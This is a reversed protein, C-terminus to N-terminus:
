MNDSKRWGCCSNSSTAASSISFCEDFGSDSHHPSAPQAKVRVGGRLGRTFSSKLIGGSPPAGRGSKDRVAGLTRYSSELEPSESPKFTPSRGLDINSGADEAGEWGSITLRQCQPVRRPRKDHRGHSGVGKNRAPRQGTSDSIRARVGPTVALGAASDSAEICQRTERRHEEERRYFGRSRVDDPDIELRVQTSFSTMMGMSGPSKPRLADAMLGNPKQGELARLAGVGHLPRSSRARRSRTWFRPRVGADRNSTPSLLINNLVAATPFASGRSPSGSGPQGKGSDIRMGEKAQGGRRGARDQEVTDEGGVAQRNENSGCNGGGGGDAGQSDPRVNATNSTEGEVPRGVPEAAPAEKVDNPDVLFVQRGPVPFWELPRFANPKWKRTTASTATSNGDDPVRRRRQSSAANDGPFTHTAEEEMRVQKSSEEPPEVERQQNNIRWNDTSRTTEHALSASTPSGAGDGAAKEPRGDM